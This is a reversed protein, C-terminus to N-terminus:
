SSGYSDHDAEPQRRARHAGHDRLSASYDGTSIFIVGTPWGFNTRRRRSACPRVLGTPTPLRVIGGVVLHHEGAIQQSLM